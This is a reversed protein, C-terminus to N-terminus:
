SRSRHRSATSASPARGRAPACGAASRRRPRSPAPSTRTTTRSVGAEAKRWASGSGGIRSPHPVVEGAQRSRGEGRPHAGFRPHASSPRPVRRRCRPARSRGRPPRGRLAPRRRPRADRRGRAPRGNEGVAVHQGVDARDLAQRGVFEEGGAKGALIQGLGAARQAEGAGLRAEDIVDEAQHVHRAGFVHQELVDGEHQPEVAARRHRPQDLGELRAAPAPGIAGDVREGEQRLAAAADEHQRAPREIGGLHEEGVLGLRDLDRRPDVGMGVAEVPGFADAAEAPSRVAHRRQLVARRDADRRRRRDQHGVARTTVGSM